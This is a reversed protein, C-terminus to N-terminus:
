EDRQRHVQKLLRAFGVLWQHFIPMENKSMEIVEGLSYAKLPLAACACAAKLLYLIEEESFNPNEFFYTIKALIAAKLIGEWHKSAVHHQTLLDVDPVNEQWMTLLVDLPKVTLLYEAIDRANPALQLLLATEYKNEILQM